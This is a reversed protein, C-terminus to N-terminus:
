NGCCRTDGQRGREAAAIAVMLSLSTSSISGCNAFLSACAASADAAAHAAQRVAVGGKQILTVNPDMKPRPEAYPPLYLRRLRLETLAASV